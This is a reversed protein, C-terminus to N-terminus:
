IWHGMKEKKIALYDQNEPRSEIRIPVRDVITLGYGELAYYKDPNNTLLKLRSIGLDRLIQAGVGYDRMDPPFGLALNAAVTDMGSEQLAYAKIKNALGIGRGEQRMYLLCGRGERAIQKLAQDLQEGCDCRFSGFVDGTLCESHVRTLVPRGDAVDGMILALHPAGNIKETYVIARFTGYQTPLVTEAERVFLNDRELRYRVLDQISILPLNHHTHFEVLEPFRAM